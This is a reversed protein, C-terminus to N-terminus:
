WETSTKRLCFIQHSVLIVNVKALSPLFRKAADISLVFLLTQYREKDCSLGDFSLSLVKQYSM